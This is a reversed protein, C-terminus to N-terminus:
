MPKQNNIDKKRYSIPFFFDTKFNREVTDMDEPTGAQRGIKENTKATQKM